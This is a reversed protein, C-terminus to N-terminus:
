FVTNQDSGIELQVEANGAHGTVTSDGESNAANRATLQRGLILCAFLEILELLTLVSGGMFLGMLGGVGATLDEFNYSIDQKLLTSSLEGAHIHLRVINESAADVLEKESETTSSPGYASSFLNVMWERGPVFYTKQRDETLQKFINTLETRLGQRLPFLVFTVSPEYIREECPRSFQCNSEMKSVSDVMERVVSGNYLKQIFHIAQLVSKLPISSSYYADLLSTLNNCCTVNRDSYMIPSYGAIYCNLGLEHFMRSLSKAYCTGLSYNYKNGKGTEADYISELPKDSVCQKKDKALSNVRMSLSIQHHFGPSVAVSTSYEDPYRGRETFYIRFGSGILLEYNIFGLGRVDITDNGLKLTKNYTADAFLTIDLHGAVYSLLRQATSTKPRITFCNLFKYHSLKIIDVDLVLNHTVPMVTAGIITQEMRMGMNRSLFSYPVSGVFIQAALRVLEEGTINALHLVNMIRNIKWNTYNLEAESMTASYSASIMPYSCIHIDPFAFKELNPSVATSVPQSALRNVADVLLKLLVSVVVLFALLWLMRVVWHRDGVTRSLGHATSETAAQSLVSRRASRWSKDCCSRPRRSSNLADATM